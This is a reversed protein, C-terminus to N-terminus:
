VHKFLAYILVYLTSTTLGKENLSSVIRMQWHLVILKTSVVANNKNSSNSM